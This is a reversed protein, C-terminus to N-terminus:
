SVHSLHCKEKVRSAPQAIAAVIPVDNAPPPSAQSPEPINKKTRNSREESQAYPRLMPLTATIKWCAGLRVACKSCLEPALVPQLGSQGIEPRVRTQSERPYWDPNHRLQSTTGCPRQCPHNGRASSDPRINKPAPVVTPESPRPELSKELRVTNSPDTTCGFLLPAKAARRLITYGLQAPSLPTACQM